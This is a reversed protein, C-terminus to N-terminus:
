SSHGDADKPTPIAEAFGGGTGAAFMADATMGVGTLPDGSQNQTVV